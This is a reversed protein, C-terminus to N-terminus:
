KVRSHDRRDSITVARIRIDSLRGYEIVGVLGIRLVRHVRNVRNNRHIIGINFLTFLRGECHRQHIFVTNRNHRRCIYIHRQLPTVRGRIGIICRRQRCRYRDRGAVSTSTSNHCCNVINILFTSFRQCSPDRCNSILAARCRKFIQDNTTLGTGRCRDRILNNRLRVIRHRQTNDTGGRHCLTIM